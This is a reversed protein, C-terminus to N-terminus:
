FNDNKKNIKYTLDNFVWVMGSLVGVWCVGWFWNSVRFLGLFFFFFVWFELPVGLISASPLRFIVFGYKKKKLIVCRFVFL